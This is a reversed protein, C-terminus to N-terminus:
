MNHIEYFTFIEDFLRFRNIDSGTEAHIAM